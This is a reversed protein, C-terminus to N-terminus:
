NLLYINEDSRTQNVPNVQLLSTHNRALNLRSFSGILNYSRWLYVCWVLGSILRTSEKRTSKDFSTKIRTHCIERCDTKSECLLLDSHCSVQLTLPRPNEPQFSFILKNFRMVTTLNFSPPLFRKTSFPSFHSHAMKHIVHANEILIM